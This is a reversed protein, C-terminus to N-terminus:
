FALSVLDFLLCLMGDVQADELDKSLAALGAVTGREENSAKLMIEAAECPLSEKPYRL